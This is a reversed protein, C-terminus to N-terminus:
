LDPKMADLSRRSNYGWTVAAMRIGAKKAAEIDRTKDGVFL